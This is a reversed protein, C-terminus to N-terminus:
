GRINDLNIASGMAMARESAMNVRDRTRGECYEMSIRRERRKQDPLVHKMVMKRFFNVNKFILFLTM